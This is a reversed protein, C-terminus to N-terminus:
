QTWTCLHKSIAGRKGLLGIETCGAITYLEPSVTSSLKSQIIFSVTDMYMLTKIKSREKRIIWNRHLGMYNERKGKSM